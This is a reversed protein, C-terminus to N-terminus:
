SIIIITVPTRYMAQIKWWRRGDASTAQTFLTVRPIRVLFSDGLTDIMIQTQSQLEPVTQQGVHSVCAVYVKVARQSSVPLSCHDHSPKPLETPDEVM